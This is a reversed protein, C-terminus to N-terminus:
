ASLLLSMLVSQRLHSIEMSGKVDRSLSVWLLPTYSTHHPVGLFLAQPTLMTSACLFSVSVSTARVPGACTQVRQPGLTSLLFLCVVLGSAMELQYDSAFSFETGGLLTESLFLSSKLTPWM